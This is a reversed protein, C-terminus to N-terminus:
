AAQQMLSDLGAFLEVSRLRAEVDHVPMSIILEDAGTDALFASLKAAATQRSGVVAYRLTHEVGIREMDSWLSDMSAVPKPFPTRVNRRACNEKRLQHVIRRGVKLLKRGYVSLTNLSFPQM